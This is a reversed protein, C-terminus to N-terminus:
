KLLEWDEDVPSLVDGVFATKRLEELAKRAKKFKNAPPVLLAVERGKSTISVHAGKEVRKLVGALNKKFWDVAVTEM